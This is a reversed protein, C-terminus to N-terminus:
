RRLHQEVYEFKELLKAWETMIYPKTTENFSYNVIPTADLNILHTPLVVDQEISLTIEPCPITEGCPGSILYAIKLTNKNIQKIRYYGGDFFIKDTHFTNLLREITSLTIM